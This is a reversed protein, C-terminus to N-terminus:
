KIVIFQKSMYFGAQKPWGLKGMEQTLAENGENDLTVQVLRPMGDMQGYVLKMWHPGEPVKMAGVCKKIAEAMKEMDPLESTSSFSVLDGFVVDRKGGPLEMTEVTQHPDAPNMFARYVVHFTSLTFNTMAVNEAEAVDKGTGAVYDVITQGSPLLIKFEVEASSGAASPNTGYLSARLRVPSDAIGIGKEDDVLKTEGHRELWETFFTKWKDPKPAADEGLCVQVAVVLCLLLIPRQYVM